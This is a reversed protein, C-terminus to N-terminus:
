TDFYIHPVLVHITPYIIDIVEDVVNDAAGIAWRGLATFFSM